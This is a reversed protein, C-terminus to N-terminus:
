VAVWGGSKPRLRFGGYDSAITLTALGDVTEGGSFAITINHASAAGSIDFISLPLGSRGGAAAWAAALPLFLTIPAGANAQVEVASTSIAGTETVVTTSIAGLSITYVGNVVTVVIGNAGVVGAPFQPTLQLKM